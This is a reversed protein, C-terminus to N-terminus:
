RLLVVIVEGLDHLWSGDLDTYWMRWVDVVQNPVVNQVVENGM